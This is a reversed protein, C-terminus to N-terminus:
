GAERLELAVKDPGAKFFSLADLQGIGDNFSHAAPLL